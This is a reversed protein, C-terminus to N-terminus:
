IIMNPNRNTIRASVRSSISGNAAGVAAAATLDETNQSIQSDHFPKPIGPKMGHGSEAIRAKVQLKHRELAIGNRLINNPFLCSTITRGTFKHPM